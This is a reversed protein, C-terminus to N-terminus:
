LARLEGELAALADLSHAAAFCDIFPMAATMARNVPMYDAWGLLPNLWILRRVRRKLRALEAALEESPATDYGDSMVIFVSRRGLTAKAYRDNFTRLCPGLRTGGGFGEAMLALRTMARISDTERLADSVRVLRTHCLFADARTWSAVLGRVFQLFVGAYPQMSGSVDLLVVVRVPREPRTRTALLVPDGGLSLNARITRRLDLRAGRAASRYRRSLRDRIARALRYAVREAAAMAEPDAVHRLDTRRLAEQRSAALRGRGGGGTGDEADAARQVPGEGDRPRERGDGLHDRWIGPPGAAPRRRAEPPQAPRERVRGRAFWYAEFLDDFREWEERRSTLLVRLAHRAGAPDDGGVRGLLDLAALTDGPGVRFGNLRLHGVFGIMRRRIASAPPAESM